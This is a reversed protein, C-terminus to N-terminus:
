KEFVKHVNVYVDYLAVFYSGNDNISHYHFNFIRSSTTTINYMRSFWKLIAPKKIREANVKIISPTKSCKLRFLPFSLRGGLSDCSLWELASMKVLSSALRNMTM